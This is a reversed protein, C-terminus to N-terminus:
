GWLGAWMNGDESTKRFMVEDKKGETEKFGPLKYCAIVSMTLDVKSAPGEVEVGQKLLQSQSEWMNWTENIQSPGEFRQVYFTSSEMKWVTVGSNFKPEAVPQSGQNLWFCMTIKDVMDQNNSHIFHFVPINLKTVVGASNGGQIYDNLKMFMPILMSTINSPNGDELETTTCVMETAPYVREEFETDNGANVKKQSEILSQLAVGSLMTKEAESGKEMIRKIHLMLESDSLQQISSWTVQILFFMILINRKFM